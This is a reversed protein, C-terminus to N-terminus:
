GSGPTRGRRARPSARSSRGIQYLFRLRRGTRRAQDVLPEFVTEYDNKSVTGVARLAEVGAPVDTLKELM